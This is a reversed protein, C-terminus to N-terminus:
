SESFMAQLLELLSTPLGGALLVVGAGYAGSKEAEGAANIRAMTLATDQPKDDSTILSQLVGDTGSAVVVLGAASPVQISLTIDLLSQIRRLVAELELIRAEVFEIYASIADTVGAVGAKISQLFGIIETLAAEVPPLGQPFLRYTFWAGDGSSGSGAYPAAAVSLVTAATSLMSPNSLLVNRCFSMTIRPGAIEYLVPSYDASGTGMGGVDYENTTLFGPERKLPISLGGIRYAILAPDHHLSLPNPAIGAFPNGGDDTTPDLSELISADVPFDSDLDSWTVDALSKLAGSALTVNANELIFQEVSTPLPGTLELLQNAVARCAVLLKSRFSVPDIGPKNFFRATNPGVLLPVLYRALDELGTPEGATDLQYMPPDSSSPSGQAVLDARSLVLVALATAVIELYAATQESPFTVKLASSPVGKASSAVDQGVSLRAAGVQGAVVNTQNISWYFTTARPDSGPVVDATLASVRVYVERAPENDITVQVSGDGVDEFTAGYPMDEADLTISFQQGPAALNVGLFDATDLFFARQLVHKGEIYLANPPIVVSDAASVCGYLRTAGVDVPPEYVGNLYSWGLDGVDLVSAGGYLRFPQGDPDFILGVSQHQIGDADISARASPTMYALTIGDPITSVEVLFGPPAPLPWAITGSNAPPAMQWSVIAKTPATGNQLIEMASKFAGGPTNSAGYVVGLGTPTTYARPSKTLGFFAKVQSIFALAEAIATTDFSAYLFVAVVTTRSSFNPRTPDSRDVLRAAMRREYAAYGGLLTDFPYEANFDGSVYIGIQRIDQVLGEIEAIAADVIVSIPDILGVLLGKVVDLVSRTAELLALLAGILTDLVDVTQVLTEPVQVSVTAWRADNAAM